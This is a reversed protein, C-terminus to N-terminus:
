NFTNLGALITWSSNLRILSFSIIDIQNITGEPIEGGLWKITQASGDIQVATPLYASGGQDLILTVGSGYNDNTFVNTFNATFNGSISSHYFINGNNLNHDVVGTASSISSINEKAGKLTLEDVTLSNTTTNDTVIFNEVNLDGVTLSKTTTNGNTLVRDIDTDEYLDRINEDMEEYTLASGKDGRKTITM